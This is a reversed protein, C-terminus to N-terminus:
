TASTRCGRQVAESNASAQPMHADVTPLSSDLSTLSPSATCSARRGGRKVAVGRIDGDGRQYVLALVLELFCPGQYLPQGLGVPLRGPDVLAVHGDFQEGATLVDVGGYESQSDVGAVLHTHAVPRGIEVAGAAVEVALELLLPAAHDVPHDVVAFRHGPGAPQVVVDHGAHLCALLCPYM